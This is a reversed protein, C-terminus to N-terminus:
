QTEHGEWHLIAWSCQCNVLYSPFLPSLFDQVNDQLLMGVLKTFYNLYYARESQGYFWKVRAYTFVTKTGRENTIKYFFHLITETNVYSIYVRFRKVNRWHRSAHNWWYMHIRCQKGGCAHLRFFARFSYCYLVILEWIPFLKILLEAREKEASPSISKWAWFAPTVVLHNNM